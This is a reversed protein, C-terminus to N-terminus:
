RASLNAVFETVKISNRTRVVKVVVVDGLRVNYVHDPGKIKMEKAIVDDLAYYEYNLHNSFSVSMEIGIEDKKTAVRGKPIDAYLVSIKYNTVIVTDM